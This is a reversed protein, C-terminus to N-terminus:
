RVHLLALHADVVHIRFINYNWAEFWLAVDPQSSWAVATSFTADAYWTRVSCPFNGSSDPKRRSSAVTLCGRVQGPSVKIYRADSWHRVATVYSADLFSNEVGCFGFIPYYGLDSGADFSPSKWTSGPSVDIRRHTYQGPDCSFAYAPTQSPPDLGDTMVGSATAAEARASPAAVTTTTAILGDYAPASVRVAVDPEGPRQPHASAYASAAADFDGTADAYQVSGDPYRITADPVPVAHLAAIYAPTTQVQLVALQARAGPVQTRYVRYRAVVGYEARSPFDTMVSRASAGTAPPFAIASLGSAVFAGIALAAVLIRRVM